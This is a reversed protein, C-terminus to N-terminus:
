FGVRKTVSDPDDMEPYRDELEQLERFLADYESDPVTPKDLTYYEYSYRKLLQRLEILRQKEDM